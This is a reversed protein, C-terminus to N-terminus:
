GIDRRSVGGLGAALLLLAVVVLVIVPGAAPTEAPVKALHTFPSIELVADPLNLLPGFFTLVLAVVVAGWAVAVLRPVVGVLLAAVGVLVWIAPVQVLAAGVTAGISPSGSAGSSGLAVGAGGVVVVIASGALGFVLHSGLWRWRTTSTALLAEVRDEAEERRARLVAQVGYVAAVIGLISVMAAVFAATPGGSRASLVKAVTPNDSLLEAASSAISGFLVGSIAYGIVWGLLAGRQLRWALGFPTRLGSAGVAPGPRAVIVGSGLDRRALIRDAGVFGAAAAGFPVVLVSWRDGTFAHLEQAWGLPSIWSAWSAGDSSDGWGRVVYAVGLVASALGNATHAFSGLQATVAAIAAFVAGTALVSAGMAFSGAVPAGAAVLCIAAGLGAVAATGLALSCGSALMTRRGVVGSAVLEARGTDEEARTHRVVTFIAMLAVFVGSFLGSRWATFGGPQALDRAPGLLLRFAPTSGFNAMLERRSAASPFLSEYSTYSAVPFVALGLAWATLRVRDRRLGLRVIPGYGAFSGKM